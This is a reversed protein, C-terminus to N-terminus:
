WIAKFTKAIAKGIAHQTKIPHRVPYTAARGIGMHIPKKDAPQTSGAPKDQAMVGFACFLFVAILKRM